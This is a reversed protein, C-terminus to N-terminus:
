NKKQHARKQSPQALLRRSSKSFLAEVFLAVSIGMIMGALRELAPIISQATQNNEPIVALCFAIAAQLFLYDFNAFRIQCYTKLAFATGILLVMVFLNQPLLLLSLLGLLAGLVCGSFRHLAKQSACNLSREALIVNATILGQTAGYWGSVLYAYITLLAGLSAILAHKVKNKQSAMPPQVKVPIKIFCHFVFCVSIGLSIELIRWYAFGAPSEQEALTTTLIMFFTVGALLWVYAHKQTFTLYYLASMLYFSLLLFIPKQSIFFNALLLALSAGITTGIVRLVSKYLINTDTNSFLIAITILAWYPNKLPIANAIIFGLSASFGSFLVFTIHKFPRM